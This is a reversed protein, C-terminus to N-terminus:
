SADKGRAIRAARAYADGVASFGIQATDHRRMHTEIEAAIQTRLTSEAYEIGLDFARSVLDDVSLSEEDWDAPKGTLYRTM